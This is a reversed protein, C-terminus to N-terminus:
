DCSIFYINYEVLNVNICRLALRKAKHGYGQISLATNIGPIVFVCSFDYKNHFFLFYIMRSIDTVSVERLGRMTIANLSSMVM